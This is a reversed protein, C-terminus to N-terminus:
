RHVRDRDICSLSCEAEGSVLGPVLVTIDARVKALVKVRTALRLM